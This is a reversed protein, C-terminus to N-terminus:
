DANVFTLQSLLRIDRINSYDYQFLGDKGIMMLTNRLPIADFANISSYHALMNQDIKNVDAADFIRLGASGDCIFLTTGDIGLGHPNTMPYVKILQPSAPNEINIVELQNTFGQCQTGSRLTVYAYNGDVVVPDCSRIHQYTSIKVPNAPQSVDIIHMGSGAGLFLKAGYPFITEIDWAIYSSGKPVPQAPNSIDFPRLNGANLAYLHNANITFRAMSGGVGPSSGNNGPATALSANFARADMAAVGGEYCIMPSANSFSCDSVSVKVEKREQWGTIIGKTADASFGFENNFYSFTNSIRNVEKINSINTIDFSVLDIYSDAYLTNGYVALEYNGPISLFSKVVPLSPNANDVIHIGKGPENIFLYNGKVYIRGAGSIPKPTTLVTEAKIEEFSKYVPEFYTFHETTECRDTCGELLVSLGLLATLFLLAYLSVHMRKQLRSELTDM